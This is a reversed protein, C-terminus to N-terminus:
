IKGDNNVPLIVHYKKDGPIKKSLGIWENYPKVEEPSLKYKKAINKVTQGAKATIVLLKKDHSQKGVENQYAIKHALFKIVYWYTHSDIDMKKAGRYKDKIHRQAGGVGTQYAMITYIWNDIRKNNGVMYRGAGRSSAEISKREDIGNGIKLGQEVGTPKKFQWYGVANSSSVAVANIGTEQLILYKIDEPCGEERFAKEIVPFHLNAKEVKARFHKESKRIFDVEKQIKHRGGKTITLQINAFKMKAPVQPINQTFGYQLIFLLGIIVVSIKM